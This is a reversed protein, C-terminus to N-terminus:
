NCILCHEDKTVRVGYWRLISLQNARYEMKPFARYKVERRNAWIYYDAVLDEELSSLGSNLGKSLEVLTLKVILNCVPLIDSSLGVQIAANRNEASTYAPLDRNAQRESSIEEQQFNFLGKGILCALCPKNEGPVYRFVDGGEARTIARGYIIKKGYEIALANLRSRSQNEDTLCLIIDVDKIESILLPENENINIEFTSVGAFPNKQLIADRIAHTKYRGLDNIGCTHRAINSLEVRDFDFLKFHGIGAKALEIAINSGFSGLGIIAVSKKELVDVELLGKARSYLESKKPVYKFDCERISHGSLLVAAKQVASGNYSFVCLIAKNYFNGEKFYTTIGLKEALIAKDSAFDEQSVYAFFSMCPTGSVATKPTEVHVHYVDEDKWEFAVGRKLPEGGKKLFEAVEEEYAYVVPANIGFGDKAVDSIVTSDSSFENRNRALVLEGRGSEFAVESSELFPAYNAIADQVREPRRDGGAFGDEVVSDVVTSGPSLESKNRVVELEGTAPNFAVESGSNGYNIEAIENQIREPRRDGGAFGDKAVDSIVTSDSSLENRNRILFLEGKEPDFAVEESSESFPAYNVNAIVDQVREPRRDVGAFGDRAVGSVITSDSLESENGIVERDGTGPNFAVESGSNGYNINRIEDQVRESSTNAGM